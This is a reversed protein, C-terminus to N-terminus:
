AQKLQEKLEKALSILETKQPRFYLMSVASIFILLYLDILNKGLYFLIFGYVGITGLMASSIVMAPFYKTIAPHQNYGAAPQPTKIFKGRGKRALLTKRIYKTLILTIVSIIYLTIRVKRLINSDVGQSIKIKDQIYLGVFLYFALSILVGAWIININRWGKNIIEMEERQVM